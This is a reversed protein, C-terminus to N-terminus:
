PAHEGRRQRLEALVIEMQKQRHGCVTRRRTTLTAAYAANSLRECAAEARKIMADLEAAFVSEAPSSPM